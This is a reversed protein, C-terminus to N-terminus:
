KIKQAAYIRNHTPSIVLENICVHAPLAALWAIVEGMDDMQVMKEKEEMPPPVPLADMIPTYVEGPCLATCRIGNSGEEMNILENMASVAHKAANYAAGALYAPWRGAWSSVNIILGGGQARMMPLVPHLCQFVGNVDVDIVKRWDAVSLVDTHRDKVNLGANNVLVDVRGLKDRIRAAVAACADPDSVDLQEIVCSGGTAEIKAATDQLPEMRRGSAIVAYGAAALAVAGAQGIGTGAGTVWAAKQQNDNM